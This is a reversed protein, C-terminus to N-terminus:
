FTRHPFFYFVNPRSSHRSVRQGTQIHDINQDSTLITQRQKAFFDDKGVLIMFIAALQNQNLQINIRNDYHLKNLTVVQENLYFDLNLELAALFDSIHKLNSNPNIQNKWTELLRSRQFSFFDKNSPDVDIKCKLMQIDSIIKKGTFPADIGYSMLHIEDTIKNSLNKNIVFETFDVEVNGDIFEFIVTETESNYNESSKFLDYLLKLDFEYDSFSDFDM